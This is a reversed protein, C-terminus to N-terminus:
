KPLSKPDFIGEPFKPNTKLYIRQFHQRQKAKSVDNCWTSKIKKPYWKGTDTQAFETIEKINYSDAPIKESDVDTLWFDDKQWSARRQSYSERRECLYDRQPNIYYLSRNPLSVYKGSPDVSGPLLLEICVLKNSKSYETEVIKVDRGPAFWISINPWGIGDIGKHNPNHGERRYSKLNDPLGYVYYDYKGEYLYVETLKSNDNNTWWELLSDFTTGVANSYETWGGSKKSSRHETKMLDGNRYTIKLPNSIARASEASRITVIAIYQNSFSERHRKYEQLVKLVEGPPLHNIIKSSAPVGLEYISGPGTEPYEFEIDGAMVVNGSTDVGKVVGALLLHNQRDVYLRVESSVGNQSLSIEHTEVVKGKYKGPEQTIRAGQQTFAEVMKELVSLASSFEVSPKDQHLYSVTITQSCPDYTYNEHKGYDFYVVSGNANKWIWIKSEFAVWQEGTGEVGREFGKSIMHMWPMKKMNEIVQGLAVAEFSGGFQNVCILIAIVIVAAATIKTIPRKVITIWTNQAIVASPSAISEGEIRSMVNEVLKEDPTIAQALKELKKEIKEEATM